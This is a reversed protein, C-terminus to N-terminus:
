IHVLALYVIVVAQLALAAVVRDARVRANPQLATSRAVRQVRLGSKAVVVVLAGQIPVIANRRILAPVRLTRKPALLRAVVGGRRRRRGRGSSRRGREARVRM